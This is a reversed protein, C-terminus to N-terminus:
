LQPPIGENFAVHRSNIDLLGNDRTGMISVSVEELWGEFELVVCFWSELVEM